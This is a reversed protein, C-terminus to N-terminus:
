NSLHFSLAGPPVGPPCIPGTPISAGGRRQDQDRLHCSPVPHPGVVGLHQQLRAQVPSHVLLEM